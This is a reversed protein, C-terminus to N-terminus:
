SATKWAFLTYAAGDTWIPEAYTDLATPFQENETQVVTDSALWLDYGFGSGPKLGWVLLYDVGEDDRWQRMLDDPNSGLRLPRSWHDLVVDAMCIIDAPCYYSKPEWLFLVRSGAPLTDLQRMTAYYNGLNNRLYSDTDNEVFYIGPNTSTIRHAINISGILTTFVLAGRMLFEIDVPRKPWRSLSHFALAGLVTVGPVGLLMLRPQAGIGSTAAMLMWLALISLASISCIRLLQRANDSLASRSILLILPLTLLWAGTTFDYPAYNQVGLFTASLPLFLWQWANTALLSSSTQNFSAARLDDWGPGGFIYPYVPNQYLLAGKLMWPLFVILAAIGFILANKVFQRPQDILIFIGLSIGLVAGTYKVGMSLGVCVGVLALWDNRRSKHWQTVATLALAGYLMMGLDIYPLTFQLWLSYSSFILLIGTYAAARDAYRRIIGGIALLALFGAYFHVPVAATARGFPLMALGYLLDIGQPFGLHHNDAQTTIRGDLRYREPGVLHYTLGDWAFPPAFALVLAGILLLGVIVVIIREWATQPYLAGSVVRRLDALWRRIDRRLLVGTVILVAWLVPNFLGALGFLLAGISLIGLGLGSELAVREALHLEGLPLRQGIRRGIGGSVLGIISLTMFDAAVGILSLLANAFMAPQDGVNHGWFYLAVVLTMGIFLVLQKRLPATM